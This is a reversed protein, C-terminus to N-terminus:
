TFLGPTRGPSFSQLPFEEESDDRPTLDCEITDGAPRSATMELGPWEIEVDDPYDALVVQLLVSPRGASVSRLEAVADQEINDIVIRARRSNAENGEGPPAIKLPRAIFTLDDGGQTSVIDAGGTCWRKPATFDAHTITILYVPTERSEQRTVADTFRASPM